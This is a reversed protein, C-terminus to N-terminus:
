RQERAQTEIEVKCIFNDTGNTPQKKKLNLNKSGVSGSDSVYPYAKPIQM